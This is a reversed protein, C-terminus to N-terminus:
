YRLSPGANKRNRSNMSSTAWRLNDRRNNWENGDIHDVIGHAECPQEIGTRKMIEVHLYLKPKSLNQNRVFYKKSGKRKPHPKNIHWRWRVAWLYDEESVECWVSAREDGYIRFNDPSPTFIINPDWDNLHITM